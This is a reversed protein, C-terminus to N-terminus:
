SSRDSNRLGQFSIISLAAFIVFTFFSTVQGVREGAITIPFWFLLRYLGVLSILLFVFGGLFSALRTSFM